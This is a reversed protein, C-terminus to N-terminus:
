KVNLHVYSISVLTREFLMKLVFSAMFLRNSFHNLARKKLFHVVADNLRSVYKKNVFNKIEYMLPLTALCPFRLM